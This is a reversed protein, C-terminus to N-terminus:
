YPTVHKRYSLEGLICGYLYKYIIYRNSTLKIELYKVEVRPLVNLCKYM